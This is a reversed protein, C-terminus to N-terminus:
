KSSQILCRLFHNFCMKKPYAKTASLKRKRTNRRSFPLVKMMIDSKNESNGVKDKKGM